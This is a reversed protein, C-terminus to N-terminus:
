AFPGGSGEPEPEVSPPLPPASPLNGGVEDSGTTASRPDYGPSSAPSLRLEKHARRALFKWRSCELFPRGTAAALQMPEAAILEVLTHISAQALQEVIEATCGDFAGPFLSERSVESRVAPPQGPRPIWDPDSAQADAAQGEAPAESGSTNADPTEQPDLALQDLERWRELVESLGPDKPEAQELAEPAQEQEPSRARAGSAQAPLLETPLAVEETDLGIGLRGALQRAERQFRQAGEISTHLTRSLDNPDLDVIREVSDWGAKRLRSRTKPGEGYLTCLLALADM